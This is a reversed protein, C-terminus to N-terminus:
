LFFARMTTYSVPPGMGDRPYRVRVDIRLPETGSGMPTLWWQVLYDENNVRVTRETDGTGGAQQHLVNLPHSAIQQAESVALMRATSWTENDQAATVTLGSIALLGVLGVGLVVMAVLVEILSFGQQSKMVAMM